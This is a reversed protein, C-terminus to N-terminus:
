FDWSIEYKYHYIPYKLEYKLCRENLDFELTIPKLPKKSTYDTYINLKCNKPLLSTGFKVIMILKKTQEYIGTSLYPSATHTSNDIEDMQMEFKHTNGKGIIPDTRITYFDWGLYKNEDIIKQSPLTANVKCKGKGSFVYRDMFSDFDNRGYVLFSKKHIIHELDKYELETKRELLLTNEKHATIYKLWRYIISKHKKSFARIMLAILIIILIAMIIGSAIIADLENKIIGVVLGVITPIIFILTCISAVVSLRGEEKM